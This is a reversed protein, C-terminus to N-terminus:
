ILDDMEKCLADLSVVVGNGILCLVDDRWSVSSGLASGDEARRDRPTVRTDASFRVVASARDALM